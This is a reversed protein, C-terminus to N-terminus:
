AFTLRLQKHGSITKGYRFVKPLLQDLLDWPTEFSANRALHLAYESMLHMIANGASESYGAFVSSDSWLVGQTGLGVAQRGSASQLGCVTQWAETVYGGKFGFPKLFPERVVTSATKTITINM